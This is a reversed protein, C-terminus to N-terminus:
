SAIRSTIGDLLCSLGFEFREDRSEAAGPDIGEVFVRVLRPFLGSDELRARWEAMGSEMKEKSLGAAAQEEEARIERTENLVSGTVYTSVTTLIQVSMRTDVGLDDLCALSREIHLLGNPGQPPRDAIVELRWRHRLLSARERRAVQALDKQWSGSPEATEDEAEIADLMLDLLHEKSIIHWYLSMTGADVAKAIRRMNIAEAGEADALAIAARVIEDRSLAAERRGRQSRPTARRRSPPAAFPPWLDDLNKVSRGGPTAYEHM